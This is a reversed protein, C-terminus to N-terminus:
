NRSWIIQWFGFCFMSIIILNLRPKGANIENEYWGCIEQVWSIRLIPFDKGYQPSAMESVQISNLAAGAFYAFEFNVQVLNSKACKCIEVAIQKGEYKSIDPCKYEYKSNWLCLSTKLCFVSKFVMIGGLSYFNKHTCHM